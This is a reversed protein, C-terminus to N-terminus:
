SVTEWYSTSRQCPIACWADRLHITFFRNPITFQAGRRLNLM